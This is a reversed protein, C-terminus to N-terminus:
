RGTPLPKPNSAPAAPLTAPPPRPPPQPAAPTGTVGGGGGRGPPAPDAFTATFSVDKAGIAVDHQRAGGDSWNVFGQPSGTSITRVSGPVTTLTVPATYATGNYVVQGGAPATFLTLYVVKPRISVSTTATLGTSNIATLIIEYYVEDGHDPITFSGSAETITLYIHTHCVGGPCHHQIVQWTLQSGPISGDVSDTASGAFNITDGVSYTLSSSPTTIKPTPPTGVRITIVSTPPPNGTGDYAFLVADYVGPATYLHTPNPQTTGPTGDDFEWDFPIPQGIPGTTGVSSFHVTLPAAGITVNASAKPVVPQVPAANYVIHRVEGSFIALYYVDGDPGIAFDVPSDAGTAFDTPGGTLANNGDVTLTRIVSQAYDAYFYVGSYQAPYNAGTYFVGGAVAAGLNNHNYAVLPAQVASAGRNYLAQCTPKSAYGGQQEPGEYCPWGYNGGKVGADVEEWTVWGVDGVFPTDSGPRLSFRFPNRFGYAWVKSRNASADGNWFPNTPVGLGATTIHVLKGALMDINQSRLADDDVYNFSAGDGFSAFLTGDSAFRLSGVSHSASDSVICNTGVPFNDCSSGVTTGLLVVESAPSAVNGIVTYRALRSTKSGDYTNPDNEYTYMLYLYGNTTYNPDIAMGILGRDGYSNVRDSIDIVLNTQLIGNDILRVRGAKESVFILRGPVFTFGTPLVTGASVIDQRFGNPVATSPGTRPKSATAPAPPVKGGNWLCGRQAARADAEAATYRHRPEGTGNVKAVGAKVLEEAVVRGDRTRASYVFRHLADFKITSDEELTLGGQALATLQRTAEAGCASSGPPVDIGVIVVDVQSGDLTTEFSRGDLVRVFPPTTKTGGSVMPVGTGPSGAGVSAPAPNTGQVVLTVLIMVIALAIRQIRLGIRHHMM